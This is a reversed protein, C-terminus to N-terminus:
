KMEIEAETTNLVIESVKAIVEPHCFANVIANSIKHFSSNITGLNNSDTESQMSLCNSSMNPFRNNKSELIQELKLKDLGQLLFICNPYEKALEQATWKSKKYKKTHPRISADRAKCENICAEVLTISRYLSCRLETSTTPVNKGIKTMILKVLAERLRDECDSALPLWINISISLDMSEVYHWWKRPVLLVDGPELIVMQASEISSSIRQVDCQKRGHTQAVLNCGYSDQHCNTHAGKSGIWLTSEDGHKNFGFPSWNISTLVEPKNKLWEKMHKYDFYYWKSPDPNSRIIELFQHLTMTETSCQTEWQPTETWTNFGIRFPLPTDGFIEALEDFNWHQFKWIDSINENQLIRRFIIPEEIELIAQGLIECSPLQTDNM